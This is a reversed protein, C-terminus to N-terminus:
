FTEVGLPGMMNRQNRSDLRKTRLQRWASEELRGQKTSITTLLIERGDVKGGGGQGAASRVALGM